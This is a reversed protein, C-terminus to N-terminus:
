FEYLDGEACDTCYGSDEFRTDVDLEVGCFACVKPGYNLVEDLIVQYESM